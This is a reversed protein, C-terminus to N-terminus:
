VALFTQKIIPVVFPAKASFCGSLCPVHKLEVVDSFFVARAVKDLFRQVIDAQVQAVVFKDGDEARAAGALRRQQVDDAAQVAVVAAVKDDVADGGPLVGVAVPVGVAVVGDAKHELAVVEDRVLRHQGIHLQGQGDGADGLGLAAAPRGFRQLIHAQAALQVLVGALHGAALHLAHGDGAGQHVVGVDQQRVLGGTRQVALGADLHHFQQLFHGPVPQHDHDGVVGLQGLLVGGADDPQLVADDTRIGVGKRRVGGRQRRRHVFVQAMRGHGGERGERQAEVVQEGFLGAGQEGSKCAGDADDADRQDKREGVADAVIDAIHLAGGKRFIGDLDGGVPHVQGGQQVRFAISGGDAALSRGAGVGRQFAHDGHAAQERLQGLVGGVDVVQAGQPVIQFTVSRGYLLVRGRHFVGVANRGLEVALIRIAGHAPDERVVGERAQVVGGRRGADDGGHAALVHEAFHGLLGGKVLVLVVHLCAAPRVAVVFGHQHQVGVAANRVVREVQQAQQVVGLQVVEDAFIGLVVVDVQGLVVAGVVVFVEEAKGILDDGRGVQIGVVFVEPEPAAVGVVLIIQLLQGGLARSQGDHAHYLGFGVGGGGDQGGTHGVGM